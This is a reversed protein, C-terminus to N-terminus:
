KSERSSIFAEKIEKMTQKPRPLTGAIGQKTKIEIFTSKMDIDRLSNKLFMALEEQNDFQYCHKYGLEKAINSFNIDQAYTTQGGVSEHMGNNLVIHLMQGHQASALMSGMHMLTGGDGDLCVVTGFDPNMSCGTAFASTHGMSGVMYMNDDTHDLAYLERSTFGTASVFKYRRDSPLHELVTHIAERRTMLPGEVINMDIEEKEFTQRRVLLCYPSSTARMHEYAVDIQEKAMHIHDSLVQYEIGLTELMSPTLEGQIMHQPEDHKNPEGRWGVMMLMPISYVDPHTLSLLPNVVNGLGSNQLYVCSIKGTSVNYGAAMAIANGENATVINKVSVSNEDLHKLYDQLLSDPVGFYQDTGKAKLADCFEQSNLFHREIETFIIKSAAVEEQVPVEEKQVAKPATSFEKSFDKSMSADDPTRRSTSYQRTQNKKHNQWPRQAVYNSSYKDEVGELEENDQIRFIENVTAISGEVTELSQKEYIEQTTEQMASISARVNHNAWIVLSIGLDRFKDTPTKYYKTPVIVIPKRGDWRKMFDVIDSDDSKKSHVLIADAGADAYAYARDMADDVGKGTIFSELRAVVNFDPDKQYAKCAAIKGSFEEISALVQKEGGIFSNTKPFMKDEMCVGAVGIRELRNVLRRANNFNGFGTDGDLLIPMGTADYMYDTVDTVQTWSAENNDRVGLSASMSLGSAWIGKFGAEQVIKASLGNHAEMIFELEDSNLMNRFATTSRLSKDSMHNRLLGLHGSGMGPGPLKIKQLSKTLNLM